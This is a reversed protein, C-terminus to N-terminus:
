NKTIHSLIKWIGNMETNVEGTSLTLRLDYKYTAPPVDVIREPISIIGASAPEMITIGSNATSLTLVPPSDFSFRVQMEIYAGSLNLASSNRLFTISNIGYWTDGAIHSPIEYSVM